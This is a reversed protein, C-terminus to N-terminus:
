AAEGDLAIVLLALDDHLKGGGRARIRNVLDDASRQPDLAPVTGFLAMAGDDGL